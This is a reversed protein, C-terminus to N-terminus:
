VRKRKKSAHNRLLLLTNKGRFEKLIKERCKIKQGTFITHRPTSNSANVRILPKQAEQIQPKTDSMLKPIKMTMITEFIEETGKERKM